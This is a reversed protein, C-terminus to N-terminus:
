KGFLALLAIVFIVISGILFYYFFVVLTYEGGSSHHWAVINSNPRIVYISNIDSWTEIQCEDARDMVWLVPPPTVCTQTIRTRVGPDLPVEIPATEMKIWCNNQCNESSSNFYILGSSVKVWVKSGSIAVIRTAREPPKEIQKWEIFWGSHWFFALLLGLGGGLIPSLFLYLCSKERSRFNAQEPKKTPLHQYAHQNM